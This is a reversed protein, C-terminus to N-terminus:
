YTCRLLQQAGLVIVVGAGEAGPSREGVCRLPVTPLCNAIKDDWALSSRLQLGSSEKHYIFEDSAGEERSQTM